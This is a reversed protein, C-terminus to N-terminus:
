RRGGRKELWLALTMLLRQRALERDRFNKFWRELTRLDPVKEGANGIEELVTEMAAAQNLVQLTMPDPLTMLDRVRRSWIEPAAPAFGGPNGRQDRKLLLEILLNDPNRKAKCIAQVLFGALVYRQGPGALPQDRDLRDAIVDLVAWGDNSLLAIDARANSDDIEKQSYAPMDGALKRRLLSNERELEAIRAQMRAREDDPSQGNKAETM